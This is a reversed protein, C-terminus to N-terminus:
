SVSGRTVQSEKNPKTKSFLLGVQTNRVSLICDGHILRFCEGSGLLLRKFLSKETGNRVFKVKSLGARTVRRRETMRPSVVSLASKDGLVTKAAQSGERRARGRKDPPQPRGLTRGSPASSARADTAMLPPSHLWAALMREKPARIAASFVHGSSPQTGNQQPESGSLPHKKFFVPM